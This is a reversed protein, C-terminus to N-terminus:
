GVDGKECHDAKLELTRAIERLRNALARRARVPEAPLDNATAISGAMSVAQLITVVDLDLETALAQNLARIQFRDLELQENKMSEQVAGLLADLTKDQM